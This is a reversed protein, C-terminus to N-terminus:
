SAGKILKDIFEIGKKQDLKNWKEVLILQIMYGLIRRLTFVEIGCMEDIHNFRYEYLAKHLDMPSDSYEEFIKKLDQYEPPPEYTVADKQELIQEMLPDNPDEYKLEEAIDRGLKKARLASFVRRWDREFTMYEKLFGHATGIEDKYHISLLEAVHKLRELDNDYKDLFEFLYPPYGTRTLLAEEIQKENLIGHPDLEEKNLYLRINQFDTYRRIVLAQEYDAKSLNLKLLLDLLRFTIGPPEGIKLEPLIGGVFPYEKLLYDIM